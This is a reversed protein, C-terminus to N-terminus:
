WTLPRRGDREEEIQRLAEQRTLVDGAHCKIWPERQDDYAPEYGGRLLVEEETLRRRMEALDKCNV